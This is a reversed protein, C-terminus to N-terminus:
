FKQEAVLDGLPWAHINAPDPQPKHRMVDRLIPWPQPIPQTWAARAVKEPQQLRYVKIVGEAAQPEGDLTTTSVALEVPKDITLWDAASLAAKLATYGVNIVRQASRTEGTSATVDASVTFQFTPESQESVKVDPKATFQIEFSGDAATQATGHAIEQSEQPQPPLWWCRWRWWIPFRVERVVRWKVQGGDVAAGTYNTAKGSLKVEANLRGPVQPADLAVQFKPRKYEEVSFSTAGQPHGAVRITMQGMLRDRPATFSGHFSGYDNTRQKQVAIEKGNPDLFVVSVQQGPLIQYNDQQQDVRICLGKYQITQGPRYLSRDTFFITRQHPKPRRDHRYLYYRNGSALAQRKHQAHLLINRHNRDAAQLDFLGNKDTTTQGWPVWRNRDTHWARVVAEVVPRGSNADLVFGGVRGEGARTRVVLALDSVWFDTFHVQNNRDHFNQSVSSILFYSGPKLDQPAPFTEVRAQYDETAPLEHSFSLVPQQSLLARREEHDLYEPQRGRNLRAEWDYPVVRFHVKTINRYHVTINPWPANWVRETSSRISKAEIEQILNYCRRGGVSDPFRNKGQTAIQHAEVLQGAGKLVTAWRHRARSSIPHDAHAEAFRQLAAQYRADKETGFAHNHGFNLRLLDADLFATPQDDDQHFRLLDQFLRLAKVKPSSQDTTTIEWALFQDTSAFVPSDASLDFADEARAAAQEGSSYFSIAEHALFDYLTPRYQDDVTGKVLLDDFQAIPIAKLKKEDALAKELQRDIEAFLRP